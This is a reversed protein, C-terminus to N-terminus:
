RRKNKSKKYKKNLEQLEKDIPISGLVSIGLYREVDEATNIHDNVLYLILVIVCSIAFGILAGLVTNKKVNPGTPQEPLNAPDVVNVAGIGMVSKIQTASVERVKDAIGQALAPDSHTVTIELIRSDGLASVEISDSLESVTSDLKLDNITTELVYRSKILEEYDSILMSATQVDSYTIQSADGNANSLMYVSTTSEYLPTIFFLSIVLAAIATAAASLVILWLWDVFKQFLDVLNIEIDRQETTNNITEM